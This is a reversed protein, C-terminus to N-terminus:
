ALNEDLWEVWHRVPVPAAGGLHAICGINSSLVVQPQGALLAELKRERLQTAIGSQLLSYTGASGCCLHADRIPVPEAGLARVISEVSGALKQGHQLTCPTHVAVRRPAGPKLRFDAGSGVFESLDRVNASLRKAREAYAPEDALLEGYQKLMLGCGSANSVIAEAGAALAPEWADVNRRAARRAGAPDGLHQRIAGCCGGTASGADVSVGIRDLVRATAAGIAPAMGAQVCGEPVVVRRFHRQAPLAGAARHPMLARRLRSPLVPRLAQALRYAPAFWRGTLSSRLWARFARAFPLRPAREEILERGIDLLRGYRVGSPCATECARCTLCRDLHLRTRATVPEGELAQKILYIRGRPGDLEDGLLLYTPCTPACFGCHVCSRLIAEAERGEPRDRIWEALRTQM